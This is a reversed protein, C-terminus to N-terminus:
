QSVCSSVERWQGLGEGGGWGRGGGRREMTELGEGGVSGGRWGRSNEQGHVSHRRLSLSLDDVM